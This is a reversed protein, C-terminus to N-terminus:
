KTLLPQKQALKNINESCQNYDGKVTYRIDTCASSRNATAEILKASPNEAVRAWQQDAITLAKM